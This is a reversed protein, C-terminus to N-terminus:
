VSGPIECKRDFRSSIIASRCRQPLNGPTSTYHCQTVFFPSTTRDGEAHYATQTVDALSVPDQKRAMGFARSAEEYDKRNKALIGLVHWTIHSTIDKKVATRAMEEAESQKPIASVTIPFPLSSYITLAKLALTESCM